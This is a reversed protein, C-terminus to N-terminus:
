LDNQLRRRHRKQKPGNRPQRTAHSHCNAESMREERSSKHHRIGKEGGKGGEMAKMGFQRYQTWLRSLSQSFDVHIRQDDIVANNMKFYADEYAERTEFEIFAYCLSNKSKHDKIIEVSLVKGFKSFMIELDEDKTIPNLKCVFLVNEPPKIEAEPIDEIMELVAARSHAEKCLLFTDLEKCDLKEDMPVWDDELRVEHDYRAAPSSQPRLEDVQTPDEFPDELVYTHKIRINQYPLHEADVYADNIKMLVDLGKRVIGFVTYKGDLYDLHPRTTIYFQSANLNPGASAMAIVAVTDHMIHPDIEDKFFTRQHGRLLKYFSHGGSGTATPDGTQVLLDKHVTHFLCNNYYKINCLKLFNQSALPFDSTYLVVVM